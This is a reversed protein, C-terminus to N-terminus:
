VSFMRSASDATAWVMPVFRAILAPNFNYYTAAVVGPGVAGMAASRQAFYQARPHSIGLEGLETGVEPAFYIMSHLPEVRRALRSVASPDIAAPEVARM